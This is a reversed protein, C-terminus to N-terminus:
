FATATIMRSAPNWTRPQCPGTTLTPIETPTLETVWTTTEAGHPPLCDPAPINFAPVENWKNGTSTCEAENNPAAQAGTNKDACFHRSKVNQSEKKYFDCYSKDATLIVVDRWPAPAWYPFYDREEPCEFGRRGGNNNQRTNVAADGNLNGEEERDSIWLGKNRERTQCADYFVKNEHMGFKLEGNGDVAQVGTAEDDPITDTTTGDRVRESPPADKTSCMYQIVMNCYLKPNTSGCGHQVTWQISLLSAEYFNMAPGVCYGGKANNQSDFLRNANNRNENAENLRDNSGRPNHLYLDGAVYAVLLAFIIAKM